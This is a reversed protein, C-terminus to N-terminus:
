ERKRPFNYDSYCNSENDAFSTSCVFDADALWSKPLRPLNGTQIAFVICNLATSLNLSFEHNNQDKLHFIVQEFCNDCIIRESEKIEARNFFIEKHNVDNM